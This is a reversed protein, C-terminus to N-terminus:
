QQGGVFVLMEVRERVYSECESEPESCGMRLMYAVGHESWTATWVGEDGTIKLPVGRITDGSVPSYNPPPIDPLSYLVSSGYLAFPHDIAQVSVSFSDEGTSLRVNTSTTLDRPLLVPVPARDIQQLAEEVIRGRVSMGAKGISPWTISSVTKPLNVEGSEQHEVISESTSAVDQALIAASACIISVAAFLISRRVPGHKTFREKTNM